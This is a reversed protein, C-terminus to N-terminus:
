PKLLKEQKECRIKVSKIDNSGQEYKLYTGEYLYDDKQVLYAVGYSHIDQKPWFVMLMSSKYFVGRCKWRRPKHSPPELRVINGSFEDTRTNHSITFTDIKEVNGTDDYIYDKWPGSYKSRNHFLKWFIYRGIEFVVAGLVAVGITGVLSNM